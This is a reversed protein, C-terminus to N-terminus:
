HNTPIPTQESVVAEDACAPPVAITRLTLVIEMFAPADAGTIQATALFKLITTAHAVSLNQTM